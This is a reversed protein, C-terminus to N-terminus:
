TKGTSNRAARGGPKEIFDTVSRVYAPFHKVANELSTYFKKTDLDDYEHMLINRVGASPAVSRAVSADIIGFRGLALFSDTYDDPPPKGEARILHFNVDIARNVIRELYREALTGAVPDTVFEEYPSRQLLERIHDVDALILKCKQFVLDKDLAM